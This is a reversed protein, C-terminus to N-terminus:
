VRRVEPNLATVSAIALYALSLGVAFTRLPLLEICGGIVIMSLPIAGVSILNVYSMVKPVDAERPRTQFLTLVSINIVSLAIGLVFLALCTLKSDHSLSFTLQTLAIVFLSSIIKPGAKGHSKLVSLFVGGLVSGAGIATEMAALVGIQGEFQTKAFLPLFALLPTLVLNMLFFSILMYRILRDESIGLKTSETSQESPVTPSMSAHSDALRVRTELLGAFIYSASNLLFLGKLGLLPYLAVAAVPGLINGLSFCSDIMATLQSLYENKALKLRPPLSLIAPNFLASACNALITVLFLLSLDSESSWALAAVVYIIGRILDTTIVAKLPGFREVWNGSYRALV